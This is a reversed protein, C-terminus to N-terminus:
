PNENQSTSSRGKRCGITFAAVRQADNVHAEALFLLSLNTNEGQPVGWQLSSSSRRIFTVRVNPTCTCSKRHVTSAQTNTRM